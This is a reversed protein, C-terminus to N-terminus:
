KAPRANSKPSPTSKASKKAAILREIQTQREAFRVGAANPANKTGKWVVSGRVELPRGELNTKFTVADGTRLAPPANDIKAGTASLDGVKGLNSDIGQLVLRPSVSARRDIDFKAVADDLRRATAALDASATNTSNNASSVDAATSAVSQIRERISSSLGAQQQAEDAITSIMTATQSVSAVINKLTESARTALAVGDNVRHRSEGIREVAANTDSQIQQIAQTVEGTAATTREALKRVEDAVVAFGRGHTGARAAEIAANLALLNTQDAIDKIVTIIRGIQESREGLATVSEAGAAVASEIEQMGRITKEVVEFGEEAQRGAQIAIETAGTAQSAVSSGSGAVSNADSAIQTVSQSQQEMSRATQDTATAITQTGQRLDAAVDGIEAITLQLADAFSNFSRALEGLESRADEGPVRTRLDGSGSGIQKMRKVIVNLPGTISRGIFLTAIVVLVLLGGTIFLSQTTATNVRDASRVELERATESAIGVVRTIDSRHDAFLPTLSSDLVSRARVLDGQKVAPIFEAEAVRFYESGKEAAKALSDLVDQDSANAKWHSIRSEFDSKGRAIDEIALLRRAGTDPAKPDLSSLILVAAHTDIIYAPPPLVDALLDKNEIIETYLAGNIKVSNMASRSAITAAILGAAFIAVLIMLRIRITLNTLM